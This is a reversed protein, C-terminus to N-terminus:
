APKTKLASNIPNVRFPVHQTLFFNMVLLAFQVAKHPARMATQLATSAPDTLLVTNLLNAFQNASETLHSKL